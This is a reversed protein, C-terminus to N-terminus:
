AAPRKKEPQDMDDMDMVQDLDDCLQSILM